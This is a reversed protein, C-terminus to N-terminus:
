KTEKYGEIEHRLVKFLHREGRSVIGAALFAHNWASVKWHSEPQNKAETHRMM